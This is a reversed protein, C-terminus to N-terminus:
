DFKERKTAIPFIKFHGPFRLPFEPFKTESFHPSGTYETHSSSKMFSTEHGFEVPSKMIMVEKVEFIISLMQVNILALSRFTASLDTTM